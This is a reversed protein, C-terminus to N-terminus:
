APELCKAIKGLLRPMDVPKTDFDNCGVEISRARDSSLAHATLAIIPVHASRGDARIATTAEWGDMDGLAVDMLIVDPAESVAMAVGKPGDEAIVTTFGQRTLRRSLMDSNMPNDEVILIKSM